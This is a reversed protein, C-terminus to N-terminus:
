KHPITPRRHALHIRRSPGDDRAAVTEGGDAHYFVMSGSRSELKLPGLGRGMRYGLRGASRTSATAPSSSM